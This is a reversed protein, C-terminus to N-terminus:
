RAVEVRRDSITYYHGPTILTRESCGFPKYNPSFVTEADKPLREKDCGSAKQIVEGEETEYAYMKVGWARFQKIRAELSFTGLELLYRADDGLMQDYGLEKILRANDERTQQNYEEIVELNRSDDNCYISDTDSYRWGVLKAGVRYITEKTYSMTYVGWQPASTADQKVAKLKKTQEKVDAIELISKAEYLLNGFSGANLRVKQNRYAATGKPLTQKKIFEKICSKRFVEPLYDLKFSYLMLCKVSIVGPNICDIISKLDINSLGIQVKHVGPKLREDWRDRFCGIGRFLSNYTIEYIGISGYDKSGIYDEWNNPDTIELPTSAHKKFVLSYIYASCIDFGFLNKIIGDEPRNYLVGGHVASYVISLDSLQGPFVDSAVGKAEHKLAKRSGQAPTLYPYGAEVFQKSLDILTDLSDEKTFEKWSRFEINGCEIQMSNRNGETIYGSFYARILDLDDVYILLIDKAHDGRTKLDYRQCLRAMENSFDELTAGTTIHMDPIRTLVYGGFTGDASPNPIVILHFIDVCYANTVGWGAKAKYKEAM